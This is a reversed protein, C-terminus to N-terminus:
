LEDTHPPTIISIVHHIREKIVEPQNVYKFIIEGMNNSSHSGENLISLLGDDFLSFIRNSKRISISKIKKVDLSRINRKFFWLQEVLIAEHPTFIAYNMSYDIYNETAVVFFTLSFPIAIWVGYNMAADIWVLGYISMVCLIYTFIWLVIHVAVKKLFYFNSRRIIVINEKGYLDSLDAIYKYKLKTDFSSFIKMRM